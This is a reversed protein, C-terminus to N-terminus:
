LMAGPTSSLVAASLAAFAKIRMDHYPHDATSMRLRSEAGSGDASETL